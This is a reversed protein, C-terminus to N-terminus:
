DNKLDLCYNKFGSRDNKFGPAGYPRIQSNNHNKIFSPSLKVGGPLGLFVSKVTEHPLQKQAHEQQQAKTIRCVWVRWEPNM